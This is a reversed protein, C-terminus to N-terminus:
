HDARLRRQIKTALTKVARLPTTIRWSVSAELSTRLRREYDRERAAARLVHLEQWLRAREQRLEALAAEAALARERWRADTETGTM